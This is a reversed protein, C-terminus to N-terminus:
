YASRCVDREKEDVVRARGNSVEFVSRRFPHLLTEKVITRIVQSKILVIASFVWSLILFIFDSRQM